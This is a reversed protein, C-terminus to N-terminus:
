PLIRGKRTLQLLLQFMWEVFEVKLIEREDDLVIGIHNERINPRLGYGRITRHHALPANVIEKWGKPIPQSPHLRMDLVVMEPNRKLRACAAIRHSGDLAQYHSGLDVVPVPPFCWGHKKLLAVMHTIKGEHKPWHGTFVDKGNYQAKEWKTM